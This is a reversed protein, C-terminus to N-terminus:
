SVLGGPPLAKSSLGLLGGPQQRGGPVRWYAQWVPHARPLLAASHGPLGAHPLLGPSSWRLQRSNCTHQVLLRCSAMCGPVRHSIHLWASFAPRWSARCCPPRGSEAAGLCQASAQMIGLPGASLVLREYDLGSMLVYVGQRRSNRSCAPTLQQTACGHVHM